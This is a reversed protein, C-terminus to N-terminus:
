RRMIVNDIQEGNIWSEEESKRVDYIFNWFDDPGRNPLIVDPATRCKGYTATDIWYSVKTSYPDNDDEREVNKFLWLIYDFFQQTLDPKGMPEISERQTPKGYDKIKDMLLVTSFVNYGFDDTFSTLAKFFRILLPYIGKGFTERPGQPFEVGFKGTQQQSKRNKLYLDALDNVESSPEIQRIYYDKCANYLMGENELVIFRAYKYKPYIKNHERMDNIYTVLADNAIEFESRNDIDRIKWKRLTYENDILLPSVISPRELLKAVGEVDCDIIRMCIRVSTEGIMDKSPNKSWDLIDGSTLDSYIIKAVRDLERLYFRTKGSGKYGMLQVTHRESTNILSSGSIDPRVIPTETKVKPM